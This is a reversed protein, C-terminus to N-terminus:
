GGPVGPKETHHLIAVTVGRDDGLEDIVVLAPVDPRAARAAIIADIVWQHPEFPEAFYTPRNLGAAARQAIEIAEARTLPTQLRELEAALAQVQARAADRELVALELESTTAESGELAASLERELMESFMGDLARDARIVAKLRELKGNARALQASLQSLQQVAPSKECSVAHAKIAAVDDLAAVDQGCHICAARQPALRGGLDEFGPLETIGRDIVEALMRLAFSAPDDAFCTGGQLNGHRDLLLVIAGPLQYAEAVQASARIALVKSARVQDPECASCLDDDVWWCPAGTREICGACNGDTCGCARCIM